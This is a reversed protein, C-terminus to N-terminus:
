LNVLEKTERFTADLADSREMGLVEAVQARIIDFAERSAKHGCRASPTLLSAQVAFMRDIRLVSGPGQGDFPPVWALHPYYLKEIRLLMEPPFPGRPDAASNASYAPIVLFSKNALQKVQTQDFKSALTQHDTVQASGIVLCPRKKSKCLLAESRQDIHILKVPLHEKERYHRSEDYNTLKFEAQTHATPTARQTEIVKFDLEPTPVWFFERPLPAGQSANPKLFDPFLERVSLKVRCDWFPPAVV